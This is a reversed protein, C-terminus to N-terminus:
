SRRSGPCGGEDRLPPPGAAANPGQGGAPLASSEPGRPRRGAEPAHPAPRTRPSPVAHRPTTTGISARIRHRIMQAGTGRQADSLRLLPFPLPQCPKVEVRHFVSRGTNRSDFPQPLRPLADPLGNDASRAPSPARTATRGERCGSAANSVGVGWATGHRGYRERRCYRCVNLRNGCIPGRLPGNLSKAHFEDAPRLCYTGFTHRPASETTERM